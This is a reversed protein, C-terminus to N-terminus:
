CFPIETILTSYLYRCWGCDEPLHKNPPKHVSKLECYVSHQFLDAYYHLTTSDEEGASACIFLNFTFTHSRCSSKSDDWESRSSSDFSAIFNNFPERSRGQTRVGRQRLGSVRANTLASPRTVSGGRRTGDEGRRDAWRRQHSVESGYRRQGQGCTEATCVTGAARCCTHM